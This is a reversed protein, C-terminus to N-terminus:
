ILTRDTGLDESSQDFSGPTKPRRSAVGTRNRRGDATDLSINIEAVGNFDRAKGVGNRLLTMWCIMDLRVKKEVGSVLAPPWSFGKTHLCYRLSVRVFM